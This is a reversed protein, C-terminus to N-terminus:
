KFLQKLKKNMFEKSYVKRYWRTKIVLNDFNKSANCFFPLVILFRIGSPFEPNDYNGYSRFIDDSTVNMFMEYITETSYYSHVVSDLTASDSSISLFNIGLLYFDVLM